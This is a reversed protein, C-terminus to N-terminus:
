RRGQTRFAQSVAELRSSAGTKVLISSVHNKVTFISINLRAAIAANALGAAMLNLVELERATLENGAPM